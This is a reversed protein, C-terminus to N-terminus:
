EVALPIIRAGRDEMEAAMAPHCTFIFVQREEAVRELIGFARDRRWADWNVLTEDMFLPLRERDADLHSIIALRLALYVQEKTGQSLAEGVKRTTSGGPERLYFSEDGPDGLEIRDYRGRTVQGLYRGARKLLEPQNEDRFRRDAERVLRALLFARDRGEKAERVQEKLVEIRGEITDATEGDGLHEIETGLRAITARLEEAHSTLRERLAYLEELTERLAEWSEGDADAAAIEAVFGDLGPHTRELEQRLERARRWSQLREAAVAGGRDPDGDAFGALRAELDHLERTAATREAEAEEREAGIRELQQEAAGAGERAKLAADLLSNLVRAAVPTEGGSHYSLADRVGAIREAARQIKERRREVEGRREHLREALEALKEIGTPLDLGPTELLSERLPLGAVMTRVTDRADEEKGKLLAVREARREAAEEVAVRYRKYRMARAARVGLTALGGGGVFISVSLAFTATIRTGGLTEFVLDPYLFRWGALALGGALLVLGAAISAWGPKPMEPPESGGGKGAQQAMLRERSKQAVVVQERLEATDIGAYDDRPVEAWAVTFVSAGQELCRAELARVEAEAREVDRKMDPMATMHAAAARVDEEIAAVKEYGDRYDQVSEDCLAAERDLQEIRVGAERRRDRLAELHGVPEAPLGRLAEPLEDTGGPPAGPGRGGSGEPPGDPGAESGAAARRLEEIRALARRVPLLRTQRDELLARRKRGREAEERLAALAREADVREGAKARLTRDLELADRRQENLEAIESRLVRVRPRGRNDPRWLRNAEAEFEAAVSRAPRVDKVGMAGVLRDQVLAWSEGEIGALEALTLAYVQRFVARTVHEVAPLRRNALNRGGEDTSLRGSAASTLRRHVEQVGGADLLIRGRGEPSGGSWPTYPHGARNAPHFGFLLTTLFSFFTSKGSENPGLVVVISPLAEEGTSLDALCGYRDIHVSEFRM